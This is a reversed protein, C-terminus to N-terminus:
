YSTLQSRPHYLICGGSNSITGDAPNIITNSLLRVFSGCIQLWIGFARGSGNIGANIITNNAVLVGGSGYSALLNIGSAESSSYQKGINNNEKGTGIITNGTITVGAAATDIGNQGIDLIMNDSISSGSSEYWLQIGTGCDSIQNSSITTNKANWAMAGFVVVASITNKTITTGDAELAIIGAFGSKLVSNLSAISNAGQLLVAYNPSSTVTNRTVISMHGQVKIGDVSPYSVTNNVATLNSGDSTVGFLGNVTEIGSVLNNMGHVHVSPANSHVVFNMTLDSISASDGNLFFGDHDDSTNWYGIHDVFYRTNDELHRFGIQKIDAFNLGTNTWPSDLALQNYAWQNYIEPATIIWTAIHTGDFMYFEVIEPIVRNKGRGFFLGIHSAASLDWNGRSYIESVGKLTTFMIGYNGKAPYPNTTNIAHGSVKTSFVNIAIGSGAQWAAQASEDTSYEIADMVSESHYKTIFNTCGKGCGVVSSNTSVEVTATSTINAQGLILKVPKTSSGITLKANIVQNGTACSFDVIGGSSPLSAIVNAIKDGLTDGPLDCNTGDKHKSFEINSELRYKLDSKNDSSVYLDNGMTPLKLNLDENLITSNWKTDSIPSTNQLMVMTQISYFQCIMFLPLILKVM